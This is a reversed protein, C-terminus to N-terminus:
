LAPLADTVFSPAVSTVGQAGAGAHGITSRADESGTDAPGGALPRAQAGVGEALPQM